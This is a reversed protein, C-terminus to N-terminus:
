LVVHNELGDVRAGAKVSGDFVGAGDRLVALHVVDHIRSHAYIRGHGVAVAARRIDFGDAIVVTQFKAEGLPEAVVPEAREGVRVAPQVAVIVAQGGGVDAVRD